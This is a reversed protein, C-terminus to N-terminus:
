SNSDEISCCGSSEELRKGFSMSVATSRTARKSRGGPSATPGPVDDTTRVLSIIRRFPIVTQRKRIHLLAPHQSYLFHVDIEQHREDAYDQVVSMIGANRYDPHVCTELGLKCIMPRGCVSADRLVYLRTSIVRGAAEGVINQRWANVPSALKWRLHDLPSVAVEVKPWGDFSAQLLEVIQEDDESQYYRPFWGPPANAM